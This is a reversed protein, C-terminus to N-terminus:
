GLLWPPTRGACGATGGQVLSGGLSGICQRVSACSWGGVHLQHGLCRPKAPDKPSLSGFRDRQLTVLGLGGRPRYNTGLRLDWHGYYIFTEDDVQEYGQGHILGGQDWSGDPGRSIFVFDPEPERFHHGDNSILFGLDM